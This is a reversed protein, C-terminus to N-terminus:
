EVEYDKELEKRSVKIFKGDEPKKELSVKVKRPDNSFEKSGIGMANGFNVNSLDIDTENLNKQSKPPDFRPEEPLRLYIIMDNDEGEIKDVTYEYGSEKHKVKLGPSLLQNGRKDLVDLENMTSIELAEILRSKYELRILKILKKETLKKM